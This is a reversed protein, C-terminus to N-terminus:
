RKTIVVELYRSPAVLTDDDATNTRAFLDLLDSKLDYQSTEDLAAFAKLM